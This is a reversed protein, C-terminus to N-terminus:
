RVDYSTSFMPVVCLASILMLFKEGTGVLTISPLSGPSVVGAATSDPAGISSCARVTRYSRLLVEGLIGVRVSRTADVPGGFSCCLGSVPVRVFPAHVPIWQVFTMSPLVWQHTPLRARIEHLARV